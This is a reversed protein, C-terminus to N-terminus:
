QAHVKPTNEGTHGLIVDCTLGYKNHSVFFSKCLNLSLNLIKNKMIDSFKHIKISVSILIFYFTM